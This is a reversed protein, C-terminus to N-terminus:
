AVHKWCERRAVDSITQQTVGYEKAIIEQSEHANARRRIDPIVSETLRAKRNRSGRPHGTYPRRRWYKNLADGARWCDVCRFGYGRRPIVDESFSRDCQNCWRNVGPEM